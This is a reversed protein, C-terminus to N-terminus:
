RTRRRWEEKLRLNTLDASELFDLLLRNFKAAEELMPFHRSEELLIRHFVAESGAFWGDLPPSVADDREGHVLLCPVRVEGLHGRLDGGSLARLSEELAPADAKGAEVSLQEGALDRGLLWDLLGPGAGAALRASIAAGIVPASVLMLRSVMEPREVAFRLAVAGGLAHGVFAAKAIGLQDLFRPLLATQAELTYREARKASDGFGWLDLAYTRYRSSLAQMSPVWYRWSGVWGHVFVIAPGRGLVEYHV